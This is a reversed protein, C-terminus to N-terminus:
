VELSPYAPLPTEPPSVFLSPFWRQLKEMKVLRDKSDYVCKFVTSESSKDGSTEKTAAPDGTAAAEVENLSHTYADESAM